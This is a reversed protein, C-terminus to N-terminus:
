KKEMKSISRKKFKRSKQLPLGVEEKSSRKHNFIRSLLNLVSSRGKSSLSSQESPYTIVGGPTRYKQKIKMPHTEGRQVSPHEIQIQLFLSTFILCM